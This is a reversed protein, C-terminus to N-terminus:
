INAFKGFMIWECSIESTGMRNNRFCNMLRRECSTSVYIIFWGVEGGRGWGLMAMTHTCLDNAHSAAQFLENPVYRIINANANHIFSYLVCIITYVLQRGGLWWGDRWVGRCEWVWRDDEAPTHAIMECRAFASVVCAYGCVGVGVWVWVRVSLLPRPRFADCSICNYARIPASHPSRARANGRSGSSFSVWWRM